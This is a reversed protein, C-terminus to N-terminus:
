PVLSCKLSSSLIYAEMMRLHVLSLSVVLVAEGGDDVWIGDIRDEVV